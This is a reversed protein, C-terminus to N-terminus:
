NSANDLFLSSTLDLSVFLSFFNPIKQGILVKALCVSCWDTVLVSKLYLESNAEFKEDSVNFEKLFVINQAVGM